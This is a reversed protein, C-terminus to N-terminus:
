LILSMGPHVEPEKIDKGLERKRSSDIGFRKDRDGVMKEFDFQGEATYSTMLKPEGLPLKDGRDTQWLHYVQIPFLDTGAVM